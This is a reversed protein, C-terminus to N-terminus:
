KFGEQKKHEELDSGDDSGYETFGLRDLDEDELENLVDEMLLEVKHSKYPCTMCPNYDDNDFSKVMDAYTSFRSGFMQSYRPDFITNGVGEFLGRKTESSTFTKFTKKEVFEMWYNPFYLYSEPADFEYRISNKQQCHNTEVIEVMRVGNIYDVPDVWFRSGNAVISATITIQDSAVHGVTIHLGDWNEEDHKDIGSHFAGFDCHSHITGIRLYGEYQLDSVYDVGSHSVAQMPIEIRFKKNEPNYHIITNAESHYTKYVERFFSLIKGFEKKSIKKIDLAAYSGLDELISIKDVKATSEFLGLKKKLFIGDKAVIYFIDDDPMPSNGDNVWVKFM